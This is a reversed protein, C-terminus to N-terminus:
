HCLETETALLGERPATGVGVGDTAVRVHCLSHPIRDDFCFQEPCLSVESGGEDEAVQLSLRSYPAPVSRREGSDDAPPHAAHELGDERCSVAGDLGSLALRQRPPGYFQRIRERLIGDHAAPADSEWGRTPVERRVMVLPSLSRSPDYCDWM